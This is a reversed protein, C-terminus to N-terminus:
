CLRFVGTFKQYFRVSRAGLVYISDVARKLFIRVSVTWKLPDVKPTNDDESADNPSLSSEAGSAGSDVDVEMSGDKDWKHKKDDSKYRGSCL